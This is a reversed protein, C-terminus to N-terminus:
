QTLTDRGKQEDTEEFGLREFLVQAVSKGPEKEAKSQVPAKCWDLCLKAHQASGKYANKLM